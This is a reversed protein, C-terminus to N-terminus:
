PNRGDRRARISKILRDWDERSSYRGVFRLWAKVTQANWHAVKLDVPEGLAVAQFNANITITIKELLKNLEYAYLTEISDTYDVERLRNVIGFLSSDGLEQLTKKAGIAGLGGGKVRDLLVAIEKQEAETVSNPWTLAVTEESPDFVQEVTTIDYALWPEDRRDVPIPLNAPVGRPRVGERIRIPQAEVASARAFLLSPLAFLRPTALGGMVSDAFPLTGRRELIFGKGTSSFTAVETGMHPFISSATPLISINM